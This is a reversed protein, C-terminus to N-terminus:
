RIYKHIQLMWSDEIDTFICCRAAQSIQPYAVDLQRIDTSICCVAAQSIQPYAADLQRIYRHIHLMWSDLIHPYAAYLQRLYRHIHLVCSGSIDTSICCEGTHSIQPYTIIEQGRLRYIHEM